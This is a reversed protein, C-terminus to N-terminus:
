WKKKGSFTVQTHKELAALFLVQYLTTRKGNWATTGPEGSWGPLCRCHGTTSHCGDAHSCDCREACNLGYTGDQTSSLSLTMSVWLSIIPVETLWRLDLVRREWAGRLSLMIIGEQWRQREGFAPLPAKFCNLSNNIDLTVTPGIFPSALQYACMCIYTFMSM